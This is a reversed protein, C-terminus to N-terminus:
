LTKKIENKIDEALKDIINMMEEYGSYTDYDWDIARQIDIALSIIKEKDM